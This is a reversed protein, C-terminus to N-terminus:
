RRRVRFTFALKEGVQGHIRFVLTDPTALVVEGRLPMLSGPEIGAPLEFRWTGAERAETLVAEVRNLEERPTGTMQTRMSRVAAGSGGNLLVLGSAQPSQLESIWRWRPPVAGGDDAMSRVPTPVKDFKADITVTGGRTDVLCQVATPPCGPGGGSWTVFTSGPTPNANLAFRTGCTIGSESCDGPCNIRGGFNETVTGLGTGSLTVNVTASCTPTPPTVSISRECRAFQGGSTIEVAAVFDGPTGYVYAPSVQTSTGGDGFSWRFEYVGTGGSAFAQFDVRLPAQGSRPNATCAVSVGAPTTTPTTPPVTTPPVTQPPTTSAPTTPAPSSQDGGNAVVAATAGGALAVGAGVLAATPVAGGVLFGPPLAPFVTVSTSGALPAVVRTQCEEATRVVTTAFEDTRGVSYAKDAGEVYYVVQKGLLQPSPRPLVGEHCPGVSKMEVYYWSTVDQPRFYVRGRALQSSPAFCAAMRPHKGAVLCDVKEHDITLGQARAAAPCALALVLAATVRTMCSEGM